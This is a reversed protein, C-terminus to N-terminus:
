FQLLASKTPQVPFLEFLLNAASIIQGNKELKKDDIFPIITIYDTVVSLPCRKLVM